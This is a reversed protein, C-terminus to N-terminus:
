TPSRRPREEAELTLALGHQRQNAMVEGSAVAPDYRAPVVRTIKCWEIAKSLLLARDAQSPSAARRAAAAGGKPLESVLCLRVRGTRWLGRKPWSGAGGRRGSARSPTPSWPQYLHGSGPRYFIVNILGSPKWSLCVGAVLATGRTRCQDCTRTVPGIDPPVAPM